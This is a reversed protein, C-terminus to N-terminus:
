NRQNELEAAERGSLIDAVRVFLSEARRCVLTLGSTVLLNCIGSPLTTLDSPCARRNSTVGAAYGRSM